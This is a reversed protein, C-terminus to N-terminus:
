LRANFDTYPNTFFRTCALSKAAVVVGMLVPSAEGNMASVKVVGSLLM